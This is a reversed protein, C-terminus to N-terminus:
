VIRQKLKTFEEDTLVGSDRLQALARLESAIGTVPGGGASSRQPPRAHDRSTIARGRDPRAVGVTGGLARGAMGALAMDSLLNESTATVAAPAASPLAAATLRTAPAAVAWSQPVSLAGISAAQGVGARVPPGTGTGLAGLAASGLRDVPAIVGGRIIGQAVDLVETNENFAIATASYSASTFSASASTTSAALAGSAAPIDASAATAAIATIVSTPALASTVATPAALGQLAQPVASMITSAQTGASAGVAHAVAAAQGAVGAPATTATPATFPTLTAASASHGAYGYMATADQAWMEGYHAETAAIAPTNQGLFNTAILAALLSRNAAIVPPPVTMAFAAEYAAAAARAQSATQEAQTATATLWALYPEAAAAMAAAAPGLWPGGTLGCVVSGYAAATSHLEAALGDWAAAAALMPGSGPGAYMRGSNIEPPLLAFDM